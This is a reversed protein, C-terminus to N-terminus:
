YASNELVEEGYGGAKPLPLNTSNPAR